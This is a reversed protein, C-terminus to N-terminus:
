RQQAKSVAMTKARLADYTKQDMPPGDNAKAFDTLPVPVSIQDGKLNIAQMNLTQGGKLKGILEPTAGYDSMCGSAFCTFFQASMPKNDDVIIRSDYQM